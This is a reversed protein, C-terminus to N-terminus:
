ESWRDFFGLAAMAANHGGIGSVGGGRRAGSGCLFVNAVDTEVGWRGAVGSEGAVAEEDAWPWQLPGHFINGGPLGLAEELDAPTHADICLRGDPARLLVDELPEALVSQLSALCADVAAETSLATAGEFLATPTQLAFLSLTHAGSRKLEPGLVSDDTLSHCYVECPVPEPLAGGSAALWGADLQGYGENVHLTGTFATVPDVGARLRPLRELVMNVKVQAGIPPADPQHRGLLRALVTPAAGCLVVSASHRSGDATELEARRGDADIRVVETGTRVEVGAGTAAAALADTLAGMGGAPVRWEGTGNGVVHYLFCRNQVLTPDDSRSYTGILGDTLVVGRVLDSGFAEQLSEGLPRECLLGWAEEGLLRRIERAPRLPELFTPALVAAIRGVIADWRGLGDLDSTLGAAAFSRATARGDSRDRVVAVEGAPACWAVRRSRLEVSLGLSALLGAPFLSVLYAYPSVTVDVGAFPRSSVAAGGLAGAREFVTVTAGARALVTAAVLANHGGGVIAVTRGGSV